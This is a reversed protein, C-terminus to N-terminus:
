STKTLKKDNTILFIDPFLTKQGVKYFSEFKLITDRGPKVTGSEIKRVYIESIGLAEALEFRKLKRKVREQIIRERKM